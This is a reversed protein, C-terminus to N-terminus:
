GNKLRTSKLKFLERDTVGHMPLLNQENNTRDGQCPEL